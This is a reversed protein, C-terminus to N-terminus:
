TSNPNKTTSELIPSLVQLLYKNDTEEEEPKVKSFTSVPETVKTKTTRSANGLLQSNGFDHEKKITTNSAQSRTKAM